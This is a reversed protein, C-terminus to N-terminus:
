NEIGQGACWGFPLFLFPVYSERLFLISSVIIQCERVGGGGRGVSKRTEGVGRM